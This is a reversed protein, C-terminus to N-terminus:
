HVRVESIQQYLFEGQGADDRGNRGTNRALCERRDEAASRGKWVACHAISRSGVEESSNFLQDILDEEIRVNRRLMHTVFRDSFEREEHIVRVMEQWASRTQSNWEYQQVSEDRQAVLVMIM